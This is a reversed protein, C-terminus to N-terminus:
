LRRIASIAGLQLKGLASNDILQRLMKGSYIISKPTSTYFPSIVILNTNQM